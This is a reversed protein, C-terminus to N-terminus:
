IKTFASIIEAVYMKHFDSAPYWKEVLSKDIFSEETLTQMFLKRCELVLKAEAFYPTGSETFAPTIKAESIKDSDRGSKAGCINLAKRHEEGFFSLSFTEFKETFEFTYRQPRIFAFVCPKNWMFGIGGWSATMTNLKSQNGASILMWDVGILKIANESIEKPDIKKM